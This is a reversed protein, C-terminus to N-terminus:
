NISIREWGLKEEIAHYIAIHDDLRRFTKLSHFDRLSCKHGNRILLMCITVQANIFNKRNGKVEHYINSIADIDKLINEEIGSLDPLPVGTLEHHIKNINNYYASFKFQRMMYRINVKTEKRIDKNMKSVYDRIQDYLEKPIITKEKGQYNDLSDRLHQRMDYQYNSAINVRDIDKYTTFSEPENSKIGCNQCITEDNVHKMRKGCSECLPEKSTTNVTVTSKIKKVLYTSTDIYKEAVVLYKTIINQLEPTEKTENKQSTTLNIEQTNKIRTNLEEIEIINDSADLSRQDEEIDSKQSAISAINDVLKKRINDHIIYINIDSM